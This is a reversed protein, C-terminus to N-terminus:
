VSRRKIPSGGPQGSEKMASLSYRFVHDMQSGTREAVRWQRFAASPIQTRGVTSFRLILSSRRAM